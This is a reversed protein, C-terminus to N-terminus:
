CINWVGKVRIINHQSEMKHYLINYRINISMSRLMQRRSTSM